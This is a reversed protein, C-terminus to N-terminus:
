ANDSEDAERVSTVTINLGAERNAAQHRPPIEVAIKLERAQPGFQGLVSATMERNLDRFAVFDSAKVWKMINIVTGTSEEIHITAGHFKKQTSVVTEMLGTLAAVCAAVRASGVEFEVMVIEM